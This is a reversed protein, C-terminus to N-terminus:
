LCLDFKKTLINILESIGSFNLEISDLIKGLIKRYFFRVKRVTKSNKLSDVIVRVVCDIGVSAGPVLSPVGLLVIIITIASAKNNINNVRIPKHM